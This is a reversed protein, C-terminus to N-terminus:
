ARRAARARSGGLVAGGLATGLTVAAVFLAWGLASSEGALVYFALLLAGPLWVWLALTWSGGPDFMSVLASIVGIVLATLLIANVREASGGDSFVVNFSGFFGVLAGLFLGVGRVLAGQM